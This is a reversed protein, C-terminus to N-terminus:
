LLSHEHILRLLTRAKDEPTGEIFTGASGADPYSYGTIVQTSPATQSADLTEIEQSRARLVNSLSPYRPRNIGSQITLVAPLKLILHQRTGGEIEREVHVSHEETHIEQHMVSTACPRGMLAALIQGVQCEHDDEAMIGTLILDYAKHSAYQHILSARAAPDLYDQAEHRIHIGHDAGMELAKQITKRVRDPGISLVHISSVPFRERIRLAEEVAFEDYRNMRFVCSEHYTIRSGYTDISVTQTSDPVQKVCVLIKM